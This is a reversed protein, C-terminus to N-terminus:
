VNMEYLLMVNSSNTIWTYRQKCNKLLIAGCDIHIYSGCHQYTAAAYVPVVLTHISSCYRWLECTTSMPKFLVMNDVGHITEVFSRPKFKLCLINSSINCFGVGYSWIYLWFPIAVYEKDKIGTYYLCTLIIIFNCLMGRGEWSFLM